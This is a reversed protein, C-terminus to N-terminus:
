RLSAQRLAEIRERAQNWRDQPRGPMVPMPVALRGFLYTRPGGPRALVVQQLVAQVDALALRGSQLDDRVGDVHARDPHRYIVREGAASEAVLDHLASGDAAAQEVVRLAPLVM